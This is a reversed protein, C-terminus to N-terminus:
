IDIYNSIEIIIFKDKHHPIKQSLLEFLEDLNSVTWNSGGDECSSYFNLKNWDTSLVVNMFDKLSM